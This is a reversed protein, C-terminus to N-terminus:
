HLRHVDMRNFDKIEACENCFVYIVFNETCEVVSYRFYQKFLLVTWYPEGLFVIDGCKRCRLCTHKPEGTPACEKIASTRAYKPKDPIWVKHLNYGKACDECFSRLVASYPTDIILKCSTDFLDKEYETIESQIEENISYEWMIKNDPISNGCEDCLRTM